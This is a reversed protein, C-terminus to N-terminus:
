ETIGCMHLARTILKVEIDGFGSTRLATAVKDEDIPYEETVDKVAIVEGNGRCYEKAGNENEAPVAIKYVDRGDDLYVMFKRLTM